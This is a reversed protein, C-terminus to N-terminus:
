NIDKLRYTWRLDRLVYEMVKLAEAINGAIHYEKVIPGTLQAQQNLKRVVGLYVYWLQGMTVKIRSPAIEYVRETEYSTISMGVVNPTRIMFAVDNLMPVQGVRSIIWMGRNPMYVLKGFETTETVEGIRVPGIFSGDENLFMGTLGIPTLDNAHVSPWYPQIMSEAKEFPVCLVRNYYDILEVYTMNWPYKGGLKVAQFTNDDNFSLDEKKHPLIKKIEDQRVPTYALTDDLLVYVADDDVKDIVGTRGDQLVIRDLAYFEM